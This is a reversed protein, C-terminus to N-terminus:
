RTYHIMCLHSSKFHQVYYIAVAMVMWAVPEQKGIYLYAQMLDISDLSPNDIHNVFLKVVLIYLVILSFDPKYMFAKQDLINQSPNACFTNDFM